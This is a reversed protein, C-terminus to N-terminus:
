TTRVREREWTWLGVGRAVVLWPLSLMIRLRQGRGHRWAVRLRSWLSIVLKSALDWSAARDVAEHEHCRSLAALRHRDRQDRIMSLTSTPGRHLSCVSPEFWVEIGQDALREAVATDEGIELTEDFAGLEEFLQRTMSLGHAAPHPGAPVVGAARGPLRACFLDYHSAWAWPGEGPAPAVACAVARYGERHAGLRGAIWGPSAVCDAELFAIVSGSSAAVGVNRTAGPLLRRPSHIVTLDPFRRRVLEPSEDDGSTVVIIEFPDTSHQRVLSRVSELITERDLYGMVIVSIAPGSTPSAVPM